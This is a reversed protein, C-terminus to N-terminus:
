RRVLAELANVVLWPAGAALMVFFAVVAHALWRAAGTAGPLAYWRWWGFFGRRARTGEGVPFGTGRAAYDISIYDDPQM